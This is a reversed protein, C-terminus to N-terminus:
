HQKSLFTRTGRPGVEPGVEPGVAAGVKPIDEVTICMKSRLNVLLSRPRPAPLNELTECVDVGM